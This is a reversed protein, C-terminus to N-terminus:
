RPVLQQALVRDRLEAGGPPKYQVPVRREHELGLDFRRPRRREHPVTRRMPFRGPTGLVREAEGCQAPVMEELEAEWGVGGVEEVAGEGVRASGVLFVLEEAPLEVGVANSTM